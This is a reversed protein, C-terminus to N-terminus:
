VYTSEQVMDLGTDEHIDQNRRENILNKLKSLLYEAFLPEKQESLLYSIQASMKKLRVASTLEPSTIVADNVERSIEEIKDRYVKDVSIWSKINKIGHLITAHHYKRPIDFLYATYSLQSKAVDELYQSCFYWYIQRAEVIPRVRTKAFLQEITIRRHECVIKAILRMHARDVDSIKSLYIAPLSM